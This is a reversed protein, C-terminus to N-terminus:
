ELISPVSRKLGKVHLYDAIPRDVARLQEHTITIGRAMAREAPTLQVDGSASFLVMRDKVGPMRRRVRAVTGLGYSVHGAGCLVVATRGQGQPSQLYSCLASAMAEDRAIQAEVMPRLREPTASMHVMMLLNLLKEYPPDKTQIDDPLEKRVEPALNEIGGSRVIQRVAESRANLALVPAGAERAAKLIPQYQRYNEWREPWETARALEDFTIEGRNYRDLVPQRFSEMQELALVLPIDRKALDAVIRDQIDHHRQLRHSEGLYIVRVSALDELIEAYSLPEGRYLDIWVAPRGDDDEAVASGAAALILVLMLCPLRM